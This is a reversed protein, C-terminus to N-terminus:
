RPSVALGRRETPKPTLQFEGKPGNLISIALASRFASPSSVLSIVKLTPVANQHVFESEARREGRKREGSGPTAWACRVGPATMTTTSVSRMKRSHVAQLAACVWSWPMTVEARVRAWCSPWGSWVSAWDISCAAAASRLWVPAARVAASVASLVRTWCNWLPLGGGLLFDCRSSCFM